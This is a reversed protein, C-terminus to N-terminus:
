SLAPVMFAQLFPVEGPAGAIAAANGAQWPIAFGCSHGRCQACIGGFAVRLSAVAGAWLTKWLCCRMPRGGSEAESVDGRANVVTECRGCLIAPCWAERLLGQRKCFAVDDM